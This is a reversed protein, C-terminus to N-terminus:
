ILTIFIKANIKINKYAYRTDQLRENYRAAEHSSKKARAEIERLECLRKSARQVDGDM